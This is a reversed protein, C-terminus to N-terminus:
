SMTNNFVYRHIGVMLLGTHLTIYRPYQRSWGVCLNFGCAIFCSAVSPFTSPMSYSPIFQLSFGWQHVTHGRALCKVEGLKLSVQLIPICAAGSLLPVTLVSPSLLYAPQKPALGSSQQTRARLGGSVPEIIKTQSGSKKRHRLKRMQSIPIIMPINHPHFSYM